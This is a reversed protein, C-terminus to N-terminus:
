KRAGRSIEAEDVPEIEEVHKAAAGLARTVDARGRTGDRMRRRDGYLESKTRYRQDFPLAALGANTLPEALPALRQNMAEPDMDAFLSPVIMRRRQAIIRYVSDRLGFFISSLGGPAAYLILLLGAPGIVLAALPSAGFIQNLVLYGVALLAGSVSGIGGIVAFIFINLSQFAPFTDADVGRQHFALLVGAFGCLVGSIAFGTLRTTVANIGFSQINSENERLAILIRGPRTRRLTTVAIVSLVLAFLALYYMSREEDFNLFFLTPRDLQSPIVGGMLQPNFLNSQVAFAFAFTTVALFLGRIRLAPLGILVAFVGTAAATLPVALWFSIGAKSTIVGGVFAGVGVLAWQGLSVQGTWGSLVVLSLLAIGQIAIFGALNTQLTSTVWPFLLITILGVGILVRRWLRIGTVSLMERPTSRFEETAKWSSAEQEESRSAQRKHLFLGVLVVLFLFLDFLPAQQEYHWVLSQRLIEFSVSAAVAAPILRMGAIVAAALAATITGAARIGGTGGTLTQFSTVSAGLILAVGSLAGAITWVLTSLGKVNIGLLMARDANEASARVAVGAKTYRFFAALAVLALLSIVIAFIHQFRFPLGLSGIQFRFSSFPMTVPAQGTVQELTRDEPSGFIPLGQVFGSAFGLGQILAITVVTLVLRPANFFRRVFGLEVVAGILAAVVIGGLFALLFPWRTTDAVALNYAFVGGAAGIAAQAFNIVRTTRYILIIGAAILGNILGIVLGSFLIAGPTGEGGGMFQAALLTAGLGAIVAVVGRGSRALVGGVSGM